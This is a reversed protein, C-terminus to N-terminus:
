ATEEHSATEEQCVPHREPLHVVLETGAGPEGTVALTGGAQEVRTRMAGLGYGKTMDAPTIGRGDDRVRLTVADDGYELTVSVRSAAAHKRVNNLGEQAARILVVEVRPPLPWSVGTVEFEAFVGLEEGLRGVIRGLAEDLSSGDLPAPTLAAVLARSEALNERATEVALALHRTPDPQAQAAQILMIISTFGQALTDHIEGALREREALAGREASLREVEARSAELRDILEAREKSQATIRNMWVGFVSSFFVTITTVTLVNFATDLTPGEALFRAMPALCLLIVGYVAQNGKPLAMFCQPCLGFLAFTAAPELVVVPTFLAVLLTLYLLGGWTSGRAIMPRGILFRVPIIALLLTILLAKEGVPRPTFAAYVVPVLVTLVLLLEWGRKNEWAHPGAASM